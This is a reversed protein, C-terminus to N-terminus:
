KHDRTAHLVLPEWGDHEPSGFTYVLFTQITALESFADFKILFAGGLMADRGPGM